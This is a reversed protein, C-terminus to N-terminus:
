GIKAWNANSTKNELYSIDHVLKFYVAKKKDTVTFQLLDIDRSITYIGFWVDDVMGLSKLYAVVAESFQTYRSVRDRGTWYASIWTISYEINM